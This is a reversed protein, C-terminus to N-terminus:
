DSEETPPPPVFHLERFSVGSDLFHAERPYFAKYTAKPWRDIGEWDAAAAEINYGFSFPAGLKMDAAFAAVLDKHKKEGRAVKILIKLFHRPHCEDYKFAFECERVVQNLPAMSSPPLSQAWSWRTKRCHDIANEFFKWWVDEGIPKCTDHIFKNVAMWRTLRRATYKYSTYKISWFVHRVLDPTSFVQAM